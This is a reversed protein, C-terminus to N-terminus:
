VHVGESMLLQLLDRLDAPNSTHALPNWGKQPKPLPVPQLNANYGMTEMRFIGWRRVGKQSTFVAIRLKLAAASKNTESM